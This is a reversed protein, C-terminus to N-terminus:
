QAAKADQERMAKIEARREKTLAQFILLAVIGIALVVMFGGFMVQYATNGEFHSLCWGNFLPFISEGAYGLPTIIFAAAGMKEVPYDGEELVAFHLAQASYQSMCIIGILVVLVGVAKMSSPMFVIGAYGLIMLALDFIYMNSIGKKDAVHGGIACGVLRFAQASYGMIGALAASMGFAATCYPVVYFYSCIVGYSAFMAIVLCWTAPRKIVDLVNKAFNKDKEKTQNRFDPMNKFAIFIIVGVLVTGASYFIILANMGGADGVKTAIAAFAAVVGLGLLFNLIGRTMDFLSYGRAQEDPKCLARLAKMLPNWFTLITTIGWVSYIVVLVPYSPRLLNVFGLLGTIILSGSVIMRLPFRDAVWGGLCYGVIAFAGYVSGLVGMQLDNIGFYVLFADYFYYRFYPLLYITMGAIAILIILGRNKKYGAISTSNNEM